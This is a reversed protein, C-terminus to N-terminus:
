TFTKNKFPCYNGRIGGFVLLQLLSTFSLESKQFLHCYSMYEVVMKVYMYM